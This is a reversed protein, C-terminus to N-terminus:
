SKGSEAVCDSTLPNLATSEVNLTMLMLLTGEMHLGGMRTSYLYCPTPLLSAIGWAMHARGLSSSSSEPLAVSPLLLRDGQQCLAKQVTLAAARTCLGQCPSHLAAHAVSRLVSSPCLQFINRIVRQRGRWRRQFGVPLELFHEAQFYRPHTTHLDVHPLEPCPKRSKEAAGRFCLPCLLAPAILQLGESCM